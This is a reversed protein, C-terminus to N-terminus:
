FWCQIQVNIQHLKEYEGQHKREFHKVREQKLGSGRKKKTGAKASRGLRICCKSLLKLYQFPRSSRFSCLRLGGGSYPAAAGFCEVTPPPGGIERQPLEKAALGAWGALWLAEEGEIRRGRYCAFRGCTWGCRFWLPVEQHLVLAAPKVLGGSSFQSLRVCFGIFKEHRKPMRLTAPWTVHSFLFFLDESTDQCLMWGRIVMYASRDVKSTATLTFVALKCFSRSLAYEAYSPTRDVGTWPIVKSRWWDAGPLAPSSRLTRSAVGHFFVGSSEKQKNRQKWAIDDCTRWFCM